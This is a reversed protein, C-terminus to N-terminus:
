SPSRNAWPLRSAPGAIISLTFVLMRTGAPYAASYSTSPLQTSFAMPARRAHLWVGDLQGHQLPPQLGDGLFHPQRQQARSARRDQVLRAVENGAEVVGPAPHELLCFVDGHEGERQLRGAFVDQSEEAVVDMRAVDNKVVIHEAAAVLVVVDGNEFGNEM